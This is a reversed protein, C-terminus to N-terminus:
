QHGLLVRYGGCSVQRSSEWPCNSIGVPILIQYKRNWGSQFGLSQTRRRRERRCQQLLVELGGLRDVDLYSTSFFCSLSCGRWSGGCKFYLFWVFVMVGQLLELLFSILKLVGFSGARLRSYKQLKQKDDLAERILNADGWCDSEQGNHDSNWPSYSNM